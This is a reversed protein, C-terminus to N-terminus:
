KLFRQKNCLQLSMKLAKMNNEEPLKIAKHKANQDVNWGSNIKMHITVKSDINKREIQFGTSRSSNTSFVMKEGSWQLIDKTIFWTNNRQPNNEQSEMRNM